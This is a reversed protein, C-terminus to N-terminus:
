PVLIGGIPYLAQRHEPIVVFTIEDFKGPMMRSVTREGLEKQAESHVAVKTEGDRSIADKIGAILAETWSM